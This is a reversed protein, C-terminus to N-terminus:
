VLRMNYNLTHEGTTRIILVGNLLGYMGVTRDRIIEPIHMEHEYFVGDIKYRVGRYKTIIARVSM